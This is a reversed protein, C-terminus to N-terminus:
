RPRAREINTKTRCALDWAVYEYSTNITQLARVSTRACYRVYAGATPTRRTRNKKGGMLYRAFLPTGRACVPLPTPIVITRTAHPVRVCVGVRFFESSFLSRYVVKGGGTLLNFSFKPFGRGLPGTLSGVANIHKLM